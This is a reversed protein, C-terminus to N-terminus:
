VSWCVLSDGTSPGLQEVDECIQEDNLFFPDFGVSSSESEGVSGHARQTQVTTPASNLYETVATSRTDAENANM